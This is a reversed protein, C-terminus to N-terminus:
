ALGKSKILESGYARNIKDYRNYASNKLVTFWKVILLNEGENCAGWSWVVKSDIVLRVTVQLGHKMHLQMDCDVHLEVDDSKLSDTTSPSWEFGTEILILAENLNEYKKM